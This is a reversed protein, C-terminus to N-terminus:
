GELVEIAKALLERMIISKSRREKYARRRIYEYQVSTIVVSLVKDKKKM